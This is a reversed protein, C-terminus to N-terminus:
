DARLATVPDVRAARLAPFLSALFAALLLVGAVILTVAPDRASARFLLPEIANASLLAIVVGAVVGLVVVGLASLVVARAVDLMRAGLAFRVGMEHSRQTVTYGIVSYLGVAALSLALVGFLVFLGAGLRWSRTHPDILSQLTRIEAFPLNAAVGQVVTRVAPIAAAADARPRIFLARLTAESQGQDLPLYYQLAPDSTLSMPRADEAVGVVESCPVSDAGVLLCKGLASEGPWLLRAMGESVIVARPAGIRDGDTFGRGSVIRTGMTAFYEPTVANYLLM